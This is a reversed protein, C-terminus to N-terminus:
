KKCTYTAICYKNKCPAINIYRNKNRNEPIRANHQSFMEQMELEKYEQAFSEEMNSRNLAVHQAFDEVQIPCHGPDDSLIILLFPHLFKLNVFNKNFCFFTCVIYLVHTSNGGISIQNNIEHMMYLIPTLM